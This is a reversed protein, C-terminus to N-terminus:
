EAAELQGPSHYRHLTGELAAQDLGRTAAGLRLANAVVLLSSSSMAVAAFLPTVYGLMAFPLALANYGIALVFNQRVLRRARRALDTAAPVALLSNGLFVLDAANRGVDAASGPAMSVEAAALAPADNLGDGVMLVRQGQRALEALREAKDAPLAASRWEDIGLEAAIRSVTEPRDGSLIEVALGQKKLAQVAQRAGPRLSDSFSFVELLRSNCSLVTGAKAEPDLGGAPEGADELAWDARGLRYRKTGSVAEVGHGPVERVHDFSRNQGRKQGAVSAALAQSCPHASLSGMAAALSLKDPDLKDPDLLSLDGRTLTGTKDFVVRDIEALRELAAGDKMMVRDEFLRRAAMVQVMPVALGLACPCTIILVAVAITVAQHLDGAALMWGLFGLTAALHVVPAYLRSARDALRRYRSRGAEAAEMLAVMKSLFSDDAGATVKVRLPGTLNLTGAQLVAGPQVACPASEGTVLSVDLDSSGTLVQGDLPIRQGAQIQLVDGPHIEELARYVLQGDATEVQAGRAALRALGQVTSRARARMVHDLTRGVLLFFLLMTAADFYAHQAHHLTDYLSMGFALLIGLTIPVDMNTQGHRLARWASVYFIRGSYLLVPLAIAASIWHFIDRTTGEAGSWVAVSLFMINGAGFGAVALARILPGLSPDKGGEASAQHLHAPYGLAELRELFPPPGDGGDNWRVTVRRVTLNVRVYTIGPLDGLTKEIARICGGCHIDPVSLEVERAAEGVQRSALRLEENQQLRKNAATGDGEQKGGEQSTCCSM